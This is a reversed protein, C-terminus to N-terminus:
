LLLFYGYGDIDRFTIRFYDVNNEALSFRSRMSLALFAMAFPILSPSITGPDDRISKCDILVSRLHTDTPVFYLIFALLQLFTSYPCYHIHVRNSLVAAAAVGSVYWTRPPHSHNGYHYYHLAPAQWLDRSIIIKATYILPKPYTRRNELIIPRTASTWSGGGGRQGACDRECFFVSVFM